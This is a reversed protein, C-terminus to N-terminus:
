WLPIYASYSSSEESANPSRKVWLRRLDPMGYGMVRYDRLSPHHSHEERFSYVPLLLAEHILRDELQLLSEMRDEPEQMAVIQGCERELELRWHDDMVSLFITNQFTYMTVLSRMVHDDFVEGTYILDYAQLEDHYIAKVVDGPVINVHLGIQECRKAFWVMDHEMNVGEEVWVNVMEGAYHSRKLWASASVLSPEDVGTDVDASVGVGVDVAENVETWKQQEMKEERLHNDADFLYREEEQQNGRDYKRVLSSTPQISSRNLADAMVQPHMLERIARRFSIDLHPGRKRMNFTMFVGGQVEHQVAHPKGDPFLEQRIMSEGRGAQPLQWIEVRDIFARGQFYSSFVELVLINPDNRVLRYPGTGIPHLPSIEVDRPLISANISSMLDPFMFNPANLVFRVTLDDFTEVRQISGFLAKCPNDMSSLIREFTFQVDEAELVRGHHFLVGKHLYFTWETGEANSEWAMALGPECVHREANYRVLRDYVEAVIGVDGWVVAQTPDLTEFSTEQPIRLTDVRGRAGHDSRLGFQGQLRHMLNERILFPLSAALAYAEEIKNNHLLREFWDGAVDHLPLCFVLISKKGRGRQPSWRVWGNDLFKNMILNMNRMTCCLHTALEGMTIEIEEEEHVHSFILRLQIYHETVEM